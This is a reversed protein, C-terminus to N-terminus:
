EYNNLNIEPLRKHLADQDFSFVLPQSIGFYADEYVFKIVGPAGAKVKNKSFAFLVSVDPSMGYSRQFDAIEARITDAADTLLYARRGMNFTIDNLRLTYEQQGRIGHQLISHGNNMGLKLVFYYANSFKKRTSDFMRREIKGNRSIEGRLESIAMLDSPMYACSAHYEQDKYEKVFDDDKGVQETFESVSVEERCSSLSLLPLIFYFLIKIRSRM